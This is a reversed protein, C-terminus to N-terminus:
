RVPIEKDVDSVLAADFGLGLLRTILERAQAQTQFRGLRVRVWRSEPIQVIRTEFGEERIQDALVRARDSSSFAGVQVAYSGTAEATPLRPRGETEERATPPPEPQAAAAEGGFEGLWREADLRTPSSPYDRLLMRIHELAHALDDRAHSAYVLRLLARDSYRGGPFEVILRTYDVEAIDPDVTLKGRLWLGQQLDQRSASPLGEEWWDTLEERAAAVQGTSILAEIRQLAPSQGWAMTPLAVLVILVLLIPRM